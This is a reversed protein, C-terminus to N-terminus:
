IFGVLTYIKDTNKYGYLVLRILLRAWFVSLAHVYVASTNKQLETHNKDVAVSVNM